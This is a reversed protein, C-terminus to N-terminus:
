IIDDDEDKKIKSPNLTYYRQQGYIDGFNIHGEHYEWEPFYREMLKGVRQSLRTQEIADKNLGEQMIQKRCVVTRKINGEPEFGNMFGKYYHVRAEISKQEWDETIPKELFLRIESVLPDEEMHSEQVRLAYDAIEPDDLFLKEGQELRYKAEGYAQDIIEDTLDEWVNKSGEEPHRTDVVWYRRNGTADHLPAKDNTTGIFVCRRPRPYQDRSYPRRFMDSKASIFKKSDAVDAKSWKALEADEAIWVGQLQEWKQKGDVGATSVSDSFWDRGLKAAFTSKGCGQPGTLVLMQDFKCGPHYARQVAACVTKRTVARTYPTDEAGLYDILLTDLREVGDWTCSDLYDTVPNYRRIQCYVDLADQLKPASHIGYVEDIYLRLGASDAPTWYKNKNTPDWPTPEDGLEVLEAFENMRGISNKLRPDNRIILSFNKASTIVGNKNRDIQELWDDSEVEINKFVDQAKEYQERNLTGKTQEDNLALDEMFKYSKLKTIPTDQDANRDEAGYMHIRVIDWANLAHGAAPDTAHNSYALVGDQYIVLGNASSGATYTYRDESSGRAYIEPIFKDIAEPVSYTRCFAGILGEKQLPDAAKVRTNSFAQKENPTLPWNSVDHWDVYRGLVEDVDIWDGDQSAFVPKVDSPHSPWYMMQVTRFSAPDVQEIGIDEAIKRAVAAYEDADCRRSLPAVLRLHPTEPTSSHTSYVCCAFEQFMTLDDWFGQAANDLDLTLLDKFAFNDNIRQPGKLGGGTFGGIDKINDREAKAKRKYEAITERTETSESLQDLLESWDVTKNKWKKSNRSSAVAITLTRTM